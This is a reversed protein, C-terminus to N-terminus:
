RRGDSDDTQRRSHSSLPVEWIPGADTARQHIKRFRPAAFRRLFPSVSSDYAFGEEALIELAWLHEQKLFIDTVRYGSVHQGSAEELVDRDQQLRTRFEQQGVTRFSGGRPGSLALEHGRRIVERCLESQSRAIWASTFFTAQSHARDLRDLVSLCNQEFRTEFRAWRKRDIVKTFAPGHFYDELAITLIHTRSSRPQLDTM